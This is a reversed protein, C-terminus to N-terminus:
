VAVPDEKKVQVIKVGAGRLIELADLASYGEEFFVNDIGALVIARACNECPFVTTYLCSGSTPIGKYACQLIVALEAHVSLYKGIQGADYNMRPDGMADQEYETPYHNNCAVAQCSGCVFLAAGIQRWWDPSKPAIKRAVEMRLNHSTTVDIGEMVPSQRKVATMDWRAWIEEFQFRRVGLPHLIKEAFLFCVDEAPLICDNPPIEKNEGFIFVEKISIVSFLSRLMKAIVPTPVAVVNRELRPLLKKATEQSILYLTSDPHNAFWDLHRKNLVPIYAILNSM